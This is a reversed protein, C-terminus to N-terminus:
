PFFISLKGTQVLHQWFWTHIYYMNCIMKNRSSTKYLIAITFQSQRRLIFFLFSFFLDFPSCQYVPRFVIESNPTTQFKTKKRKIESVIIIEVYSLLTTLIAIMNICYISTQFQLHYASLGKEQYIHYAWTSM